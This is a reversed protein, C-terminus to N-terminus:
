VPTLHMCPARKHLPGALLLGAGVGSVLLLPAKEVPVGGVHANM